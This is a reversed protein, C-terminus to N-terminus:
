QWKISFKIYEKLFVHPLKFKIKIKYPIKQTHSTPWWRLIDTPLKDRSYIYIDDIIFDLFLKLRKTDSFLEDLSTQTIKKIIELWLKYKKDNFFNKMSKLILQQKKELENKEKENKDLKEQLQFSDYHWREWLVKLNTLGNANEELKLSINTLEKEKTKIINEKTNKGNIFTKLVDLNNFIWKIENVVLEELENKPLQVTPCLYWDVKNRTKKGSCKYYKGDTGAWSIIWHPRHEECYWCELLSSLLYNSKSKKSNWKKLSLLNQAKNFIDIDIIPAHVHKSLKWEAKPLHIMKKKWNELRVSKSKNHYFKWVHFENTLISRITSDTWEYVSKIKKLHSKDSGSSTPILVKENKLETFITSINKWNIVFDEFIREVVEAEKRLIIPRGEKNKRYWYPVKKPKWENFSQAIWWWTRQLIMDKELESFVWLIWLMANWFPSSTDISEQTSIFDIKNKKLKDVVELLIKLSRAFRDIKYVIVIDFPKDVSYDLVDFMRSMEERNQIENTWSVKDYFVYEDEFEIKKWAFEINDGRARIYDSIKSLQNKHWFMTDQEITSVRIYIAAKLKKNHNSENNTM